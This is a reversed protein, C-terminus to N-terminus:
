NRGPRPLFPMPARMAPLDRYLAGDRMVMTVRDLDDVRALPDGDILILDARKGVAITGVERDLQAFRAAGITVLSLLEANAFGIEHLLQLERTLSCGESGPVFTAGARHLLGVFETLKKFTAADWTTDHARMNRNIPPYVCLSTGLPMRRRVIQDVVRRVVPSGLDLGALAPGAAWFLAANGIRGVDWAARSTDVPVMAFLAQGVHAYGDVGAEIMDQTSWDRLGSGGIRLGRKHAEAIAPRVLEPPFTSFLNLWKRGQAACRTIIRVLDERDRVQNPNDRFRSVAGDILDPVQGFLVCTTLMRPGVEQGNELRRVIRPAFLTDGHIEYVSTVGHSLVSRMGQDYIAGWSGTLEGPNFNWLGPMLTRGAADVVTANPSPRIASDPGVAVIRSDRVAVSMNDSSTGREVDILRSHVFVIGGSSRVALDAATERMRPEAAEVEALILPEVAPTWAPPLAYGIDAAPYGFLRREKDLWLHALDPVSDSSVAYLSVTMTRGSVRVSKTIGKTVRVVGFQATPLGQQGRALACQTIIAFAPAPISKPLRLVGAPLREASRGERNVVIVSDGIREASRTSLLAGNVHMRSVFRLPTADPAVDIEGEWVSNPSGDFSESYRIQNTSDSWIRLEGQSLGGPRFNRYVGVFRATDGSTLGTRCADVAPLPLRSAIAATTVGLALLALRAVM